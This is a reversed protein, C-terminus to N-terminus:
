DCFLVIFVQFSGERLDFSSQVFFIDRKMYLWLLFFLFKSYIEPDCEYQCVYRFIKCCFCEKIGSVSADGRTQLFSKTLIHESVRECVRFNEQSTLDCCYM